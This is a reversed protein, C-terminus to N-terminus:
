QSLISKFMQMEDAYSKYYDHIVKQNQSHLADLRGPFQKEFADMTSQTVDEWEDPFRNFIFIDSDDVVSIESGNAWFDGKDLMKYAFLHWVCNDRIELIDWLKVGCTKKACYIYEKETKNVIAHFVGM